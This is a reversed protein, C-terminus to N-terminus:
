HAFMVFELPYEPLFHIAFPFNNTLL